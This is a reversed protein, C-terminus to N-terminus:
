MCAWRLSLSLFPVRKGRGGKKERRKRIEGKIMDYELRMVVFLNGIIRCKVPTGM